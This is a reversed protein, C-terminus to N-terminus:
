HPQHISALPLPIGRYQLILFWEPWRQLSYRDYHAKNAGPRRGTRHLEPKHICLSFRLPAVSLLSYFGYVTVPFINKNPEYWRRDAVRTMAPDDRNPNLHLHPVHAIPIFSFWVILGQKTASPGNPQWMCIVTGRGNCFPPASHSNLLPSHCRGNRKLIARIFWKDHLFIM